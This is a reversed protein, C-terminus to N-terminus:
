FKEWLDLFLGPAMEIDKLIGRLTGIKLPANGHIPLVTRLTGKKVVHHSGRVRVISFGQKFLFVLM